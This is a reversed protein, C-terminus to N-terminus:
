FVRVRGSSRGLEDARVSDRWVVDRCRFLGILIFFTLLSFVTEQLLPPSSFFVKYPEHPRLVVPASAASSAFLRTKNSSGLDTITFTGDLHAKSSPSFFILKPSFFSFLVFCVEIMAHKKSVSLVPLSISNDSRRGVLTDGSWLEFEYRLLQQGADDLVRLEGLPGEHQEVGTVEADGDTM